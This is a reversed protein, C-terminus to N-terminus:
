FLKRRTPNLKITEENNIIKSPNIEFLTDAIEKNFKNTIKNYANILSLNRIENHADSAMITLKGEEIMKYIIQRQKFSTLSTSNAQLLYGEKIWRDIFHYNNIVYDYREPHAIIIKYDLSVNYLYEDYEDLYKDFPFEILVYKSNNLTCVKDELLLSDLKSDIMLENGLYLNIGIDKVEDFFSNFLEQLKDKTINLSSHNIFHPTICVERIGENYADILLKKSLDLGNSGDDVNPLIHSHIDIM